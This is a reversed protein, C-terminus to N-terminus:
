GLARVLERVLPKMFYRGQPVLDVAVGLSELTDSVVPGVSAVMGKNLAEKLEQERQYRRALRFLREVQATSTFAIADVKGLTLQDILQLVQGEEVEDAYIYPSVTRVDAGRGQLFSVLRRNPNDGYLQVGVIRGALEEHELTAIVGETTPAQALLDPKLGIVRLANGPKPGRTILRVRALAAVFDDHLTGGTKKAFALLRRLGEGTLVILDDYDQTIFDRLWAEVAPTDPTDHISVLPCRYVTAGRTELMRSFLDLERSEPM